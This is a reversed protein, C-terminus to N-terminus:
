ETFGTSTPVSTAASLGGAAADDHGLVVVRLAAEARGDRGGQEPRAEPLETQRVQAHGLQRARAGGASSSFAAPMSAGCM